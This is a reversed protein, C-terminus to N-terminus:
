KTKKSNKEVESKISEFENEKSNGFLWSSKKKKSKELKKKLDDVEKNQVHSIRNLGEAFEMRLSAIEISIKENILEQFEALKENFLEIDLRNNETKNNTDHIKKNLDNIEDSYGKILSQFNEIDLSNKNSKANFENIFNNLNKFEREQKEIFKEINFKKIEKIHEKVESNLDNIKKVKNLELLIYDMDKKIRSFAIKLKVEDM